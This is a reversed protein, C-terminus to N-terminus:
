CDTGNGSGSTHLNPKYSWPKHRPKHRLGLKQTQTQAIPKPKRKFEEKLEEEFKTKKTSARTQTQTQANPKPKREFEEKLGEEFKPNQLENRKNIERESEFM